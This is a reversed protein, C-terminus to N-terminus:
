RILRVDAGSNICHTRPLPCKRDKWSVLVPLVATIHFTTFGVLVKGEASHPDKLDYTKQLGEWPKNDLVCPVTEMALFSSKNETIGNTEGM